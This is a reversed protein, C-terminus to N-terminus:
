LGPSFGDHGGPLGGLASVCLMGCGPIAEEEVRPVSTSM